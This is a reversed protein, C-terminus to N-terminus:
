GRKVAKQFEDTAAKIAEEYKAECLEIYAASTRVGRWATRELVEWWIHGFPHNPASAYGWPKASYKVFPNLVEAMTPHVAGTFHVIRPQRKMAALEVALDERDASALDAYTGLGQANWEQDLPIWEGRFHLNLADQDLFSLQGNTSLAELEGIRQKALALDMLMVGANFYPGQLSDHGKPFGVDRVAALPKGQMDTRWLDKLDRLVLVDADLYLVREVPLARIMDVKAWVAGMKVTLSDKPLAVFVLTVNERAPISEEIRKKEAASLGCDVVYVSLRTGDDVGCSTEVASRITVAAAMAFSSEAAVALNMGYGFEEAIFQTELITSQPKTLFGIRMESTKRLIVQYDSPASLLEFEGHHLSLFADIGRKPHHMSTEPEAGWHYDDFIIIASKKALRWVLESDLLTDSAEHSGDIYIWDYGAATKVMEEELLKMLAPISFEDIVRFRKKTLELNHTLKKYRERGATTGMLDFHDICVIEGGSNCLETLLFVASRGEWSGIELVRPSPPVFHFFTRWTEIKDSVWDQTSTFTYGTEQADTHTM